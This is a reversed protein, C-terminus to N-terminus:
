LEYMLKDWIFPIDEASVGANLLDPIDHTFTEIFKDLSNDPNKLSLGYLRIAEKVNGAALQTHGANLYDIANPNGNMIKKFYSTAQEYKGILLSCWAIPRWAKEKNKSLYEVKFYCKLAQEYEKLELYCHGINLQVSLNDPNMQEAKRYYILAEDNHKLARLCSAIKKITWLNAANLLEANQYNLLASEIDGLMQLCYGKKQFIMENQPDQELLKDFIDSAEKFYNRNFYYEGIILLSEQDSLFRFIAPVEYFEPKVEFIDEFDRKKPHLKYFRYLDQIYQRAVPNIKKSRDPLEEKKMELMASSEASFQSTMMKRYSEPMNSISFFFSYKDSNCLLTSEILVKTLSEIATNNTETRFSFPLFWHAIENFFPYNKLHTFSSHMVDVGEMQMESFEQLKDSLGSEELINKWEPNKDEFGSDSMLDEVNIKNGLKPSIKMMEPLIEEKIKRTVKETERSLIFQLIINRADLIFSHNESLHDIRNNLKPYLYLRNNYRRLFLLIGVIARQSIEPDENECAEFLLLAKREDFTEELSLTTASLILGTIGPAYLKNKLIDSWLKLEDPCWADSLWIKRFLKDEINEREKEFSSRNKTKEEGKELLDTLAMKGTVDELMESLQLSSEPAYFHLTRRNEYYFSWTNATKVLLEIEDSLQYVSHLLDRYITEQQPDKVGEVLYNLMLKYHDESEGLREKLQWNQITSLLFTLLDFTKKLQRQELTKKATQFYNHIDQKTM